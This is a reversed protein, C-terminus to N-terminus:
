PTATQNKKIVTSTLFTMKFNVLEIALFNNQVAIAVGTGYEQLICYYSEMVNCVCKCTVNICNLLM